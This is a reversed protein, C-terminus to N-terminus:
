VEILAKDSVAVNMYVTGTMEFTRSPDKKAAEILSRYVVSQEEDLPIGKPMRHVNGAKDTFSLNLFATARKKTTNAPNKDYM